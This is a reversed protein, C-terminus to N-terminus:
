QVIFSMAVIFGLTITGVVAVLILDKRVHDYDGTVHHERM